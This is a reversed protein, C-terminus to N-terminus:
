FKDLLINQPMGTMAVSLLLELADKTVYQSSAVRPHTVSREGERERERLFTNFSKLYFIKIRCTFNRVM